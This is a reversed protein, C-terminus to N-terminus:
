FEAIILKKMGMMHEYAGPRKMLEGMNEPVVQWSVGWPDVLWGCQEQGPDSSLAEWVDDIEAQDAAQVSLSIAPTFPNHGGSGDVMMSFWQEGIRFEGFMISGAPAAGSPEPYEAIMGIEADDFTSVYHAAAERAQGVVDGSFMLQPIIFPRPWGEPDSLMLQWSVGYRDQVWGYRKSWDYEDIDMLATGGDALAAWLADMRARAAAEDGGFMLPDFNLMFSISPNPRFEPGANIFNFTYGGIELEATLVKGAFSAQWDPVQEPYRSTVTSTADDFISAYYEGAEQANHDFWINPIIKQMTSEKRRRGWRSHAPIAQCAVGQSLEM